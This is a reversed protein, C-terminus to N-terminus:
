KEELWDRCVLKKILEDICNNCLSIRTGQNTGEYRFIINYVGENKDCVDCSKYHEANEIKIM